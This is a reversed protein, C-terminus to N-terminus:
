GEDSGAVARTKAAADAFERDCRREESHRLGEPFVAFAIEVSIPTRYGAQPDMSIQRDLFRVSVEEQEATGVVGDLHSAFPEAGRLDLVDQKFHGADAFGGCDPDFVGCFALAKDYENDRRWLLRQWIAKRFLDRVIDRLSETACEPWGDDM